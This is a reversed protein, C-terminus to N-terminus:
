AKDGLSDHVLEELVPLPVAGSGLLVDHFDRVDFADGLTEEATKRLSRVAIQGIKYSLAQGPWTIYRDVENDINNVALPTNERMYRMARERSWGFAHIGTDVVLRSARWADFSLVGLRDLDDEYLGMEDALRETYLAWGEGYATVWGHRRFAPMAPLEQAIAIQLHHGPISEHFALAAAEFRPRTEPAYTNIRYEGPQTGDGSAPRYYAITTYPADHDPIRKVVCDARPLRGFWDPMARRAADLCSAAKAEVEESTAFRLEPDNRLRDFLDPIETVGLARGGIERFEAHISEMEALGTDHIERATLPLTTFRRIMAAYADDGGPIAHIGVDDGTRGHPLIEGELFDAYRELAPRIAADASVWTVEPRDLEERVMEIARRVSEANAYKGAAAGISLCELLGDVFEPIAEYRAKLNAEDDATEVPRIQPLWGITTVPTNRPLICWEEQRVDDVALGGESNEIFLRRTLRDSPNLGKPDLEKARHLYRREEERARDHDAVKTGGIRDDFRRDGLRSAWLPERVMRSEWHEELLASLGPDTVGDSARHDRGILCRTM